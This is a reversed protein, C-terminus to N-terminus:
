LRTPNPEGWVTREERRVIPMKWVSMMEGLYFPATDDPYVLQEIGGDDDLKFQKGVIPNIMLDIRIREMLNLLHLGGEQEDPSYVCFLTRINCLGLPANGPQQNYATNVVTHLVYPAYKTSAKGDPLRTRYVVPARHAVDPAEKTPKVPMLLESVAAETREKLADLLVVSTM